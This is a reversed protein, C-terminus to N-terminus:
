KKYINEIWWSKIAAVSLTSLFFGIAPVIANIFPDPLNAVFFFLVVITYTLALILLKRMKSVEWAKNADVRKNRDKLQEIEQTLQELSIM